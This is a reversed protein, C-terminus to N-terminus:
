AVALFIYTAASINTTTSATSGLTFGGSSAYVGNNGTTEAATSNLLLYPSSGSTLGRASDFTYWNGTSDTRKILVFRAGASFGCDINQSTGNGTYSGVKSIGALTAFLYTVFTYGSIVLLPTFTTADASRSATAALASDNNLKLQGANNPFNVYWDLANNRSKTIMMEPVVTLNHAQTTASGTGTYCVEDFFGPARKLFYNIYNGGAANTLSVGTAPFTIGDM